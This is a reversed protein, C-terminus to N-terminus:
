RYGKITLNSADFKIQSYGLTQRIKAAPTHLAAELASMGYEDRYIKYVGKNIEDLQGSISKVNSAGVKEIARSIMEPAIGLRHKSSEVFDIILDGDSPNFTARLQNPPYKGKTLIVSLDDQVQQFSTIRLETNGNSLPKVSM